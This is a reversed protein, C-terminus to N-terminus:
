HDIGHSRIPVHIYAPALTTQPNVGSSMVFWGHSRCELDWPKNYPCHNALGWSGSFSSRACEWVYSVLQFYNFLNSSNLRCKAQVFLTSSSVTNNRKPTGCKDFQTAWVFFYWACKGRWAIFEFTKSHIRKRKVGSNRFREPRPPHIPSGPPRLLGLYCVLRFWTPCLFLLYIIIYIYM